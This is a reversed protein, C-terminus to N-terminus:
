SPFKASATACSPLITSCGFWLWGLGLRLVSSDGQMQQSFLWSSIRKSIYNPIKFVRYAGFGAFADRSTSNLKVRSLFTIYFCKTTRPTPQPPSSYCPETCVAWLAIAMGTIHVIRQHDLRLGHTAIVSQYLSIGTVQCIKMPCVWFGHWQSRSASCKFNKFSQPSLSQTM